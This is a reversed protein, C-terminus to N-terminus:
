SGLHKKVMDRAIQQPPLKPDTPQSIWQFPTGDSLYGAASIVQSNNGDQAHVLTVDNFRARGKAADIFANRVDQIGMLSVSGM